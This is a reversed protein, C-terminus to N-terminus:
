EVIHRRADDYSMVGQEYLHDIKAEQQPTLSTAPKPSDPRMPPLAGSIDVKQAVFHALQRGLQSREAIRKASYGKKRDIAEQEAAAYVADFVAVPMGNVVDPMVADIQQEVDNPVTDYNAEDLLEPQITPGYDDFRDVPVVDGDDNVFSYDQDYDTHFSDSHPMDISM